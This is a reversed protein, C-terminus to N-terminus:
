YAETLATDVLSEGLDSMRAASSMRRTAMNKVEFVVLAEVSSQDTDVARTDLCHNAVTSCRAGLKRPAVIDLRCPM